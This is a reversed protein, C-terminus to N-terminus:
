AFSRGDDRAISLVYGLTPRFEPDEPMFTPLKVSVALPNGNYPLSQRRSRHHRHDTTTERDTEHLPRRPRLLLWGRSM